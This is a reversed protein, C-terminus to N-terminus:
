QTRVVDVIIDLIRNTAKEILVVDNEVIVRALGDPLAPLRSHLSAPLDRKALGPPLTAKRQLGPPLQERKALGPPLQGSKGKGDKHKNGKHKKGNDDLESHPVGLVERILRNELADFVVDGLNSSEVARASPIGSAVSLMLVLLTPVVLSRSLRM